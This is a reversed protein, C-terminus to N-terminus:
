EIFSDKDQKKILNLFAKTKGSASGGTILMRYPHDPVYPGELNHEENHKNTIDDLNFMKIYQLFLTHEMYFYTKPIFFFYFITELDETKFYNLQFVM